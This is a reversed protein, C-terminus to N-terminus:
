KKGLKFVTGDGSVAFQNGEKDFEMHTDSTLASTGDPNVVYEKGRTDFEYHAKDDKAEAIQNQTASETAPSNSQQIDKPHAEETSTHCSAFAIVCTLGVFLHKIIM